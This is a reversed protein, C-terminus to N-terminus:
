QINSLMEAKEDYESQFSRGSENESSSVRHSDIKDLLPQAEKIQVQNAQLM